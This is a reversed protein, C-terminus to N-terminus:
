WYTIEYFTQETLKNNSFKERLIINGKEDYKNKYETNGNQINEFNFDKRSVLNGKKDYEITTYNSNENAKEYISSSKIIFGKKDYFLLLKSLSKENKFNYSQIDCKLEDYYNTYKESHNLKSNKYEYITILHNNKLDYDMKKSLALVGDNYNKWEILNNKKDYKYYHKILSTGYVLITSDLRKKSFYYNMEVKFNRLGISKEIDNNKNYYEIASDKKILVDNKKYSYVIEKVKIEKIKGILKQQYDFEFNQFKTSNCSFLSFILTLILLKNRM